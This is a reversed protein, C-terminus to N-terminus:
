FNRKYKSVLIDSFFDKEEIEKLFVTISSVTNTDLDDEIWYGFESMYYEEEELFVLTNDLLSLESIPMGIYAGNALKGVYNNEFVIEFLVDEAFCLIISEAITLCTWYSKKNNFERIDISQVFPIKQVKLKSKIADFSSGLSFADTGIYPTIELNNYNDM